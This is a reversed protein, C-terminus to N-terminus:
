SHCFEEKNTFEVIQGRKFNMVKRKEYDNNFWTFDAAKAVIGNVALTMALLGIAIKARALQKYTLTKKARRRFM